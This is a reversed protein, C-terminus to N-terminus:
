YDTAGIKLKINARQEELEIIKKEIVDLRNFEKSPYYWKYLGTISRVTIRGVIYVFDVAEYIISSIM